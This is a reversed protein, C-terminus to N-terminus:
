KHVPAGSIWLWIHRAIAGQNANVPVQRSWRRGCSGCRGAMDVAQRVQHMTATTCSSSFATARAGRIEGRGYPKTIAIAGFGIFKYPKTIAIAGFGIFKYPKTIAIAGFGTFKYPKIIRRGLPVGQM